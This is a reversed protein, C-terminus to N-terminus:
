RLSSFEVHKIFIADATAYRIVNEFMEGFSQAAKKTITRKALVHNRVKDVLALYDDKRRSNFVFSTEVDFRMILVNLVKRYFHLQEATLKIRNEM